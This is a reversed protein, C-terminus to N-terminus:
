KLEKLGKTHPFPENPVPLDLAECIPAWGDGVHWIFLRDAPVVERVRANHAESVRIAADRDQRNALGLLARLVPAILARHPDM